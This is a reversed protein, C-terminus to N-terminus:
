RVVDLRLKAMLVVLLPSTSLCEGYVSHRFVALALVATKMVHTDCQLCMKTRNM